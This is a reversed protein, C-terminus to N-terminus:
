KWCKYVGCLGKVNETTGCMKCPKDKTPTIKKIDKFKKM